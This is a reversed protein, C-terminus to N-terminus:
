AVLNTQQNQDPMSLSKTDALLNRLQEIKGADVGKAAYVVLHQLDKFRGTGLTGTDFACTKQLNV